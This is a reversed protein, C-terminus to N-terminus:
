KALFWYYPTGGSCTFFSSGTLWSALHAHLREPSAAATRVQSRNFHLYALSRQSRANRQGSVQWAHHYHEADGTVDGLYCLMTATENEALQERILKEAEVLVVCHWESSSLVLDIYQVSYVTTNV